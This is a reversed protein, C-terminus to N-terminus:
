GAGQGKSGPSEEGEGAPSAATMREAGVYGEDKEEVGNQLRKDEGWYIIRNCNPCEMLEDGRILENFKQPPIGIHCALCVGKVVSSVALGGRHERIFDYRKLLTQDISGCLVERESELIGLEEQLTKQRALVEEKGQQVRKKVEEMEQRSAAVSKEMEEIQEMMELVSDELLSKERGVEEIEKLAATYEKNSKISFLKSNSKAIRSDLDDIERELQRRRRKTEELQELDAEVRSESRALEEELQRVRVPGQEMEKQVERIRSDCAQLSILEKLHDVM